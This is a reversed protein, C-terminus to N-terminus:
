APWQSAPPPDFLGAGDWRPAAPDARATVARAAYRPGLNKLLRPFARCYSTQIGALHALRAYTVVSGDPAADLVRILRERWDDPWPDLLVGLDHVPDGTQIEGGRLVRALMGRRSGIRAALRVGHRDLSGCAECTFMVRVLAREGIRLVTGSALRSVDAELLLNERLAHPALGFMAYADVGALLLQRPSLADAHRDGDAGVGTLLRLGDAALPAPSGAPRLSLGAIHALPSM